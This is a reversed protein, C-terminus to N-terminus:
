FRFGLEILRISLFVDEDVPEGLLFNIDIGSSLSLGENLFVEVGGGFHLLAGFDDEDTRRQKELWAFGAGGQVYPKWRSIGGEHPISFVKKVHFSPAVITTDDDLGLQLKPGIALNDDVYFDIEGPLLFTDPSDTFGLGVFGQVEGALTSRPPSPELDQTVSNRPAVTSCAATMALVLCPALLSQCTVEMVRSFVRRATWLTTTERGNSLCPCRAAQPLSHQLSTSAPTVTM